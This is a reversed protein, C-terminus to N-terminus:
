PKPMVLTGGHPEIPREFIWTGEVMDEPGKVFKWGEEAQKALFEALGNAFFEAFFVRDDKTFTHIPQDQAAITFIWSNIAGGRGSTRSSVVRYEWRPM